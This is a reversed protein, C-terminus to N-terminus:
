VVSKRDLPRIEDGAKAARVALPLLAVAGAAASAALFDRRMSSSSEATPILKETTM